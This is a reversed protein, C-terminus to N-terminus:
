APLTKERQKLPPENAIQERIKEAAGCASQKQKGLVYRSTRSLSCLSAGQNTNVCGLVEMTRNSIRKESNVCLVVWRPFEQQFSPHSVRPRMKLDMQLSWRVWFAAYQKGMKRLGFVNFFEYCM